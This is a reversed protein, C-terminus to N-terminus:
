LRNRGPALNRNRDRTIAVGRDWALGLGNVILQWASPERWAGGIRGPLGLRQALRAARRRAREDAEVGLGRDLSQQRVVRSEAHEAHRATKIAQGAHDVGAGNDADPSRRSQMDGIPKGGEDVGRADKDRDA